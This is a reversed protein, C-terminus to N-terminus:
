HVSSKIKTLLLNAFKKMGANSFHCHDYRDDMESLQDTNAGTYIDAHNDILEFQAQQIERNAQGGCRTAISLYMPATIGLKRIGALMDLFSSKYKEKPTGMSSDQEGQHWMLHTIEISGSDLNNSTRVLRAFLDGDQKWRSVPSASVGISAVLVNKYIGEEIILDGLRSWVSGQVGTAGLLPDDAIFCKGKYFNFVNHKPKYLTQGHNASNSQGFALIVMTDKLDISKCDVEQKASTDDFSRIGDFNTLLQESALKLSVLQNFPFVQYHGVSVGYLFFATSFFATRYLNM